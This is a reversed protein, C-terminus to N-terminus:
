TAWLKWPTGSPIQVEKPWYRSVPPAPCGRQSIRRLTRHLSAEKISLSFPKIGARYTYLWILVLTILVSVEFPIGFSDFFALQLVKTMLFLKFAATLTQSVIFFLAGTKHSVKGFRQELFTYISILKLRYYLPLLIFAIAFIGATYGMVIQLYTFQSNGVEGPVSIFTLGSLSVGIMGFSVLIWNSKNDASFFTEKGTNRSTFRSIIWLLLFYSLVVILALSSNM